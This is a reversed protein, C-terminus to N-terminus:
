LGTGAAPQGEFAAKGGVPDAYDGPRCVLCLVRMSVPSVLIEGRATKYSDGKGQARATFPM